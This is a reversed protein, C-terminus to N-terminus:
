RAVFSITTSSVSGADSNVLARCTYLLKRRLGRVEVRGTSPIPVTVAPRGAARCRVVSRTIPLGNGDVDAVRLVARGDLYTRVRSIVPTQPLVPRTFTVGEDRLFTEYASIRTYVGPRGATDPNQADEACSQPGWSVLGVLRLDDGTGATLPGGSDGSCTDVVQREANLGIACLMVDPFVENVPWARFAVGGISYPDSGEGCSSGPLVTLEAIQVLNPYGANSGLRGWGAAQASAGEAVLDVDGAVAPIVVPVGVMPGTLHLVAIDNVLNSNNFQPHVVVRSVRRVTAERDRLDGSAVYGVVMGDAVLGRVCHAATVVIRPGILAGGCFHARDLDGDIMWDETNGIIIASGLDGPGGDRGHVVAAAPLSASVGAVVVGVVAVLAALRSLPRPGFVGSGYTVARPRHSV